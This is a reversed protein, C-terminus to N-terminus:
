ANPQCWHILSARLPSRAERAYPSKEGFCVLLIPRQKERRDADAFQPTAHIQDAMATIPGLGFRQLLLQYLQQLVIACLHQPEVAIGSLQPSPQPHGEAAGRFCGRDLL